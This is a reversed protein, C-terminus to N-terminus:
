QSRSSGQARSFQPASRKSAAGGESYLPRYCPPWPLQPHREIRRGGLMRCFLVIPSAASLLSSPTGSLPLMRADPDQPMASVNQATQQLQLGIQQAATSRTGHDLRCFNENYASSRM